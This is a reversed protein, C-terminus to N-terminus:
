PYPRFVESVRLFIKSFFDSRVDGQLIGSLFDTAKMDFREWRDGDADEIYIPYTDPPTDAQILWFLTEGNSTNAWAILRADAAMDVPPVSAEAEWLILLDEFVGASDLLNRDQYREHPAFLRIYDFWLGAGGSDLLVRYDQPIQTELLREARDWDFADARPVLCAADILQELNSKM